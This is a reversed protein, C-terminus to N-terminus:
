QGLSTPLLTIAKTATRSPVCTFAKVGGTGCILLVTGFSKVSRLLLGMSRSDSLCSLVKGSAREVEWALLSAIHAQIEHTLPYSCLIQSLERSFMRRPDSEHFDKWYPARNALSGSQKRGNDKLMEVVAEAYLYERFSKHLFECGLHERGGKFYFSIM